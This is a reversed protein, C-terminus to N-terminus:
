PELIVFDAGDPTTLRAGTIPDYLGVRYRPPAAVSALAHEDIVYEGPMWSPTPRQGAQPPSDNQSLITDDPALAHAFVTYSADTDGLSKWVLAIGGETASWGVLEAVAGFRAGVPHETAPADFRREPATVHVSGLTTAEGLVSEAARLQIEVRYDGAALDAPLRLALPARLPCGPRWDTTPYDGRVPALDQEVAVAGNADVLRVRAQAAVAPQAVAEWYVTFGLRDGVGAETTVWDVGRLVIAGFDADLTTLPELRPAVRPCTVTVSGVTIPATLPVGDSQRYITTALRYTGPATGPYPTLTHLDRAYSDLLWRSTPFGAPNQSDSQGFFRGADDRLSLQVSYDADSTKIARWYLTVDLTSDAPITAANQELGILRFADGFDVNLPPLGQVNGDVLRSRAFPTDADLTLLRAAVLGVGIAALGPWLWRYGGSDSTAGAERRSRGLAALGLTAALGALSLAGGTQRAPTTGFDLVIESRGAPVPVRILGEPTTTGLATDVGNLTAHWGPYNFVNFVADFATPSEIVVHQRTYGADEVLLRAGSPLTATDLRRIPAGVAYAERLRDADPLTQVGVPLYEGATTTGITGTRREWDQIDTLTPNPAVSPDLGVYTWPLAYVIVCLAALPLLWPSAHRPGNSAPDAALLGALLGVLLSAPGLLRVPFQILSLGPLREWVTVAMPLTLATLLLVGSVAAILAAKRRGTTRPVRTLAVLALAVQPWGLARPTEGGILHRDFPQPWTFIEALQLFHYHYDLVPPSYARAIQIAAIEGVVPVWYWASVVLGLTLAGFCAAGSRWRQAAPTALSLAITLAVACGGALATSPNHVFPFVAFLAATRAVARADPARHLHWISWLLWPLLGLGLAEPLAGRHLSMLLYPSYAYALATLVGGRDGFLARGLAFAGTAGLVDALMFATLTAAVYSLGLHHLVVILYQAGPGYVNFIPYGFGFVLDAAWRPYWVGNALAWDLEVARFVHVAQDPGGPLVPLWWRSLAPLLLALALWIWTPRSLTRGAPTPDPITRM